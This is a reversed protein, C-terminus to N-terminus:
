HCGTLIEFIKEIGQNELALVTINRFDPRVRLEKVVKTQVFPSVVWPEMEDDSLNFAELGIEETHTSPTKFKEDDFTEMVMSKM